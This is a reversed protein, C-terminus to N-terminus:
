TKQIAHLIIAPDMPLHRIRIRTASFVANAVAPAIPPLGPEGVGGIERRSKIIHVEIEPVESMRLEHYNYFNASAVGGSSFDVKEKLAASLGMIIAGTVNARIVAPNVYPGCDIACVVRHVKITGDKKDVSVEAVEAADSGFSSHFAIGRGQGKKIPRGWGAKRAATELVHRAAAHNKLLSLRLDLPDRKATAALEDIFSEKTFANESNGVSRWFGVPIPHHVRVYEILLNPIEYEMNVAGEVAQPDIGNKIMQPAFHAFVSQVAIRQSWAVLNGKQDIGGQIVCSNGPRYFDNKIDEERTWILKIPKGVNKSIEVAEEVFDTAARRGFGGGLYTTHLQIQDPKLGTIKEAIALTGSQNQTPAWIECQGRQVHALCNMPEMTVHALYPLIYTAEIRKASRSLGKKVDGRIKATLGKEKLYELFSKELTQNDLNPQSGKDWKVQLAERAKWAAELTSACVAIGHSISMVEHVGPMKMAAESDYSLVKAGYAPPRAVAAYLMDPVFTDIGFRAKGEVKLPIDLRALPRGIITFQREKKLTVSQPIPLISAKETLDGYTLTRGSRTHRVTSQSAICESVPVKWTQAAAQVLMTRVTAGAKRLPEYMHRVSTSGGTLQQGGWNPDGYKEGAPAEVFRVLRWDADLEEAAIMPLSTCVGQGMESKNVVITINNDNRIEIWVNPNFLSPGKILDEAKIISYGLPTASVAISLGAFTLSKQLFERRTIPSNM